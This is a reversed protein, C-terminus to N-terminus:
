DEAQPGTLRVGLSECAFHRTECFAMMKLPSLLQLHRRTSYPTDKWLRMVGEACLPLAGVARQHGRIRQPHSADEKRLYTRREDGGVYMRM